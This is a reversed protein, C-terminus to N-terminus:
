KLRKMSSRSPLRGQTPVKEIGRRKLVRTEEDLDKVVCAFRCLM